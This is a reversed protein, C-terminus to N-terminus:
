KEMNHALQNAHLQTLLLLLILVLLSVDILQQILMYHYPVDLKADTMRLLTDM